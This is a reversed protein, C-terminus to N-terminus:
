DARLRTRWQINNARYPTVAAIKSDSEVNRELSHELSPLGLWSWTLWIYRPLEESHVPSDDSPVIALFVACATVHHLFPTRM